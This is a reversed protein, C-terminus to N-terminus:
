AIWSGIRDWMKDLSHTIARDKGAKHQADELLRQMGKAGGIYDATAGILRIREVISEGQPGQSEDHSMAKYQQILAILSDVINSQLM